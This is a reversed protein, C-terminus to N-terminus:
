ESDFFDSSRLHADRKPEHTDISAVEVTGRATLGGDDSAVLTGDFATFRGKVTAIMMHKVQFEISSHVPDIGWTGAPVPAAALENPALSAAM